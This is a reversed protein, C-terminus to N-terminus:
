QRPLLFRVGNHNLVVGDPTIREVTTGEPTKGGERYKRTNLFVFRDAPRSAYVHLDLHLEPISTGHSAVDGLTPLNEYSDDPVAVVPAPPPRLTPDAESPTPAPEPAAQPGQAPAAAPLQQQAVPAPPTPTPTSAPNPAPGATSPAVASTAVTTPAPAAAAVTPATAPTSNSRFVLVIVVIVNLLLLCGLAVAWVPFGSRAGTGARIDAIGPETQRQREHESKRLADLIFSM